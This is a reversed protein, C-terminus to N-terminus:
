ECRIGATDPTGDGIRYLFKRKRETVSLRDLLRVAHGDVKDLSVIVFPLCKVDLVARIVLPIVQGFLTRVLNEEHFHDLRSRVIRRSPVL